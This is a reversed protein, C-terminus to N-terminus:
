KDSWVVWAGTAWTDTSDKIAGIYKANKDFFGEVDDPTAANATLAVQPTMSMTNPDFCDVIGADNPAAMTLKPDLVANNWAATNFWPILDTEDPPTGYSINTCTAPDTGAGTPCKVGGDQGTTPDINGFFISSHLELTAFPSQATNSGNRMAIGARFGTGIMNFVKGAPDRKMFLGYPDKGTLTSLHTGCVTINYVTPETFPSFSNTILPGKIGLGEAAKKPSEQDIVFQLKNKGGRSLGFATNGGYQCILHKANFTGGETFLCGFNAQRMDVYDIVTGSGVGYLGLMEHDAAPLTTGIRISGGYEIRVYVLSGSSDTYASAPIPADSGAQFPFCASGNGGADCTAPWPNAEPHQKTIAGNNSGNPGWNGPSKGVILISGWDGAKRSIAPQASTFVIPQDRTGIAKIKAGPGVVLSADTGMLFTTGQQIELTAPSQVTLLGSVLYVKDCTLKTDVTIEGSLPTPTTSPPACSVAADTADAIGADTVDLPADEAVTNDAGTDVVNTGTDHNVSGADGGDVTEPPAVEDNSSCAWPMGAALLVLSAIARKM